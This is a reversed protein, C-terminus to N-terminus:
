RSYEVKADIFKGLPKGNDILTSIRASLAANLTEEDEPEFGEMPEFRMDEVTTNEVDALPFATKGKEIYQKVVTDINAGEDARILVALKVRVKVPVEIEVNLDVKRM